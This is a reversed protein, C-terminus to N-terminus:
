SKKRGLKINKENMKEVYMSVSPFAFSANESEVISKFDLMNQHVVNRWELYDTPETFYHLDIDISSDGFNVLHVGQLEKNNIKKYTNSKLYCEHTTCQEINCIYCRMPQYSM